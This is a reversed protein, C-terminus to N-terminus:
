CFYSCQDIRRFALIKFRWFEDCVKIVAFAMMCPLIVPIPILYIVEWNYDVRYFTLCYNKSIIIDLIIVFELRWLLFISSIFSACTAIRM